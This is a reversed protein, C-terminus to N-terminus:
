MMKDVAGFLDFDDSGFNNDTEDSDSSPNVEITESQESKNVTVEKLESIPEDAQKPEDAKFDLVIGYKTIISNVTIEEIGTAKTIEAPSIDNIGISRYKNIAENIQNLYKEDDNKKKKKKESPVSNNSLIYLENNEFPATYPASMFGRFVTKIFSNKYRFRINKLKENVDKETININILVPKNPLNVAVTPPAPTPIELEEGRAWAIIAFKLWNNIDFYPHKYLALLDLDNKAYLRIAYIM